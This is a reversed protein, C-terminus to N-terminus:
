AGPLTVAEVEADREKKGKLNRSFISYIAPV